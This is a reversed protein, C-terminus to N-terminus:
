LNAAGLTMIVLLWRMFLRALSFRHCSSFFQSFFLPRDDGWKDWFRREPFVVAASRPFVAAFDDIALM